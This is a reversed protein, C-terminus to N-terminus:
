VVEWGTPTQCATVNETQERGNRVVTQAVTRCTREVQATRTEVTGAVEPAETIPSTTAQLNRETVFGVGAGNQSILYWPQGVVKGTVSVVQGRTLRAVQTFDEGPGGRVNTNSKAQYNANIFEMPPLETLRERVVPINVPTQRRDTSTVQTRGSIGRRQSVWNQTEGTSITTETAATLQAKERDDLGRGIRSGIFAGAIAGLATTVGRNEDNGARNGIVGGIIAGLGGGVQERSQALATSLPFAAITVASIGVLWRTSRAIKM